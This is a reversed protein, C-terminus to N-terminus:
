YSSYGISHNGEIGRDLVLIRLDIQTMEALEALLALRGHHIPKLDGNYNPYSIMGSGRNTQTFTNLIVATPIDYKRRQYKSFADIVLSRRINISENTAQILYAM